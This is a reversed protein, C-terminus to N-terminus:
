NHVSVSKVQKVWLFENDTPDLPIFSNWEDFLSGSHMNVTLDSVNGSVWYEQM